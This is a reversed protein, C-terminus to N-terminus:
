RTAGLEHKALAEELAKLQDECDAALTRKRGLSLALSRVNSNRRSLKVLDRNVAQFQNLAESAAAVERASGPSLARLQELAKRATSESRAMQEEMRTMAADESEAIHPAQLVEIELVAAVAKAALAESACKEKVASRVVSDLSARFAESANRSPGFALRQAKVNTNEVALGLIEDDLRQYEDFRTRIENLHQTDEPYALAKVLPELAALHQHVVGRARRAEEAAAASADDTAAMVARNSADSAKTFEVHMESSLRRADILQSLLAPRNVCGSFLLAALGAAAVSRILQRWRPASGLLFDTHRM